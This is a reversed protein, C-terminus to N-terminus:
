RGAGKRARRKAPTAAKPARCIAATAFAAAHRGFAALDDARPYDASENMLLRVAPKALMFYALQAVTSIAAFQSDLDPPVTGDQKGQEIAECAPRFLEAALQQITAQAHAANHDIMERFLLIAARPHRSLMQRQADVIGYIMGPLDARTGVVRRAQQRLGLTLRTLVTRYLGAKDGFYYYLLASNVRAQRAIEKITTREFGRLAFLDEAANLIADAAPSTPEPEPERGAPRTDTTRSRLGAIPSQDTRSKM